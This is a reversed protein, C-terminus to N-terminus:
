GNTAPEVTATDAPVPEVDAAPQQPLDADPVAPVAIHDGQDTIFAYAPYLWVTGDDAWVMWWDAQVSTITVTIPTPITTAVPPAETAPEVTAVDTAPEPAYGRMQDQQLRAFGATTGIRDHEGAPQPVFLQGSAYTLVGDVGFGFSTNVPAAIGDVVLQADVWAGWEESNANLQYAAPDLGLAGLLEVAKAQAEDATPIGTPPQCPVTDPPVVTDPEAGVPEIPPAVDAPVTTTPEETPASADAALGPDVTVCVTGMPGAYSWSGQADSGVWLKDTDSTGVTWGGGEDATQATVDGDVGLAAAVAAIQDTTPVVGPAWSWATAPADLPDLEGALVYDVPIAAMMRSDGAAVKPGPAAEPAAVTTTAANTVPSSVVSTASPETSPTSTDDGGCAALLLAAVAAAAM